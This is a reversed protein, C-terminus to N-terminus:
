EGILFGGAKSVKVTGGYNSGYLDGTDFALQVGIKWGRWKAPEYRCELLSSFNNQKKLFPVDMRGWAQMQTLLLRYSLDPALNGNIGLHVAKLRNNKFELSGYKNYEPSTLM